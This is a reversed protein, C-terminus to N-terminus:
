GMSRSRPLSLKVTTGKEIASEIELRGDLDEARKHMNSLGNGLSEESSDFGRGDDKIELHITDDSASIEVQISQAKAHKVANQVAEQLIRYVQIGDSSAFRAEKSLSEIGSFSFNVSTGSQDARQMYDTMRTSLQEWSIQGANMAWITDRLETITQKTFNAITDYRQTLQEKIPDFYKLNEIASIIFTLQAGINDHLDRSILERQEQLKNQTEIRVLAAKLEAEQYLQRNKLKQQSYLLYGVVGLTLALVLSGGLQITRNRIQAQQQAIEVDKKETQYRTELDTTLQQIEQEALKKNLSIYEETYFAASDPMNLAAYVPSMLLYMSAMDDEANQLEFNRLAAVYYNRSQGFDGLDYYSRALNSQILAFDYSAGAEKALNLGKEAFSIALQSKKQANYLTALNNYTTSTYYVDEYEGFIRLADLYVEEAKPYNKMNKHISGLNTYTMALNYEDEQSKRFEAVKTLIELAKPYNRMELYIVGINNRVFDANRENGTREFYDLAKLYNSMASDSQFDRQFVSGLNTIIGYIKVSDGTEYRLSLAEQYNGRAEGLEGKEMWAYALDSYIQSLIGPDNLKKSQIIGRQGFFIASDISIPVYNWALESLVSVEEKLNETQSLVSKLSDILERQSQALWSFVVVLFCFLTSLYIKLM